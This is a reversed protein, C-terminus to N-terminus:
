SAIVTISGAIFTGGNVRIQTLTDSLAKRGAGLVFPDGGSHTAHDSIWINGSINLLTMRGTAQGSRVNMSTTSSSYTIADSEALTLSYASYATTEIGGADGLQVGLTSSGIVSDFVIDIRKVGAPIDTFDVSSGSTTAQATARYLAGTVLGGSIAVNDANQTALTGLELNTRAASATSAGTGGDAVPVDAGGVRFIRNGEVQIDGASARALTTDANGVEIATLNATTSTLTTITATTASLAAITAGAFSPSDGAGVGLTTRATAADADDLITRAFSTLTALAATNAGTYYPVRDNAPTLAAIADLSVAYDQVTVGLDSTMLDTLGPGNILVFFTGDYFVEFQKGSVVDNASLDTSHDFKKKVAIATGGNVALTMAGTNSRNALCLLRLGAPLATVYSSTITFANGTGGTTGAYQLTNEAIQRARCADNASAAAGMNTIRFGGFNINAAIANEGNRNLTAEIAAALDELVDDVKSASIRSAPLGSALDTTFDQTLEVVGSGNWGM